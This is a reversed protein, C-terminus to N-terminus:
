YKGKPQGVQSGGGFVGARKGGKGYAAGTPAQSYNQEVIKNGGGTKQSRGWDPHMMQSVLGLHGAAPSDGNNMAVWGEYNAMDKGYADAGTGSGFESEYYQYKGPDYSSSLESARNALKAKAQQQQAERAAAKEPSEEMTKGNSGTWGSSSQPAPSSKSVQTTTSNSSSSATDSMQNNTNNNEVGNRYDKNSSAGLVKAVNGKTFDKLMDGAMRQEKGDKKNGSYQYPTFTGLEQSM